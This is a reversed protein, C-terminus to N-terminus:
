NYYNDNTLKNIDYRNKQSQKSNDASMDNVSNMIQQFIFHDNLRLYIQISFLSVLFLSAHNGLTTM